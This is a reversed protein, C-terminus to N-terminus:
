TSIYQCSRALHRRALPPLPGGGRGQVHHARSRAASQESEFTLFDGRGQQLDAGQARAIKVTDDTSFSDVVFVWSAIPKVSRLCREIHIQENHTLIIITLEM